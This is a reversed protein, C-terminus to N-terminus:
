GNIKHHKPFTEGRNRTPGPLLAPSYRGKWGLPRRLLDREHNVRKTVWRAHRSQLSVTKSPLWKDSQMKRVFILPQILSTGSISVKTESTSALPEEVFFAGLHKRTDKHLLTRPRRSRRNSHRSGACCYGRQTAVSLRSRSQM